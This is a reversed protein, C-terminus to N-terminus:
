IFCILGWVFTIPKSGNPDGEIYSENLSLSGTIRLYNYVKTSPAEIFFALLYVKTIIITIWYIKRSNFIGTSSTSSPKTAFVINSIYSFWDIMKSGAPASEM